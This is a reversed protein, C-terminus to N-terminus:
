QGNSHVELVKLDAIEKVSVDKYGKKEVMSRRIGSQNGIGRLGYELKFIKSIPEGVLGGTPGSKYIAGPVLDASQLDEFSFIM